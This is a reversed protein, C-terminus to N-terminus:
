FCRDVSIHLLSIYIIIFTTKSLISDPFVVYGVEEQTVNYYSLLVVDGLWKFSNLDRHDCQEKGPFVCSFINEFHTGDGLDEQQGTLQEGTLRDFISVNTM